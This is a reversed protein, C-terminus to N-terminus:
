MPERVFEDGIPRYFTAPGGPSLAPDDILRRKLDDIVSRTIRPLELGDAEDLTPWVVDELEGTGAIGEPRVAIVDAFVAFFRSDFRRVRGPPTIARAVVRLPSLDPVIRAAQFPEWDPHVSAPLEMGTRGLLYGTEEATERLACLALARAKRLSPRPRMRDLLRDREVPDLENAAFARGDTPDVRGGPFVYAAPMFADRSPRRGMLVRVGSLTRDLILITAADKPRLYGPRQGDAGVRNGTRGEMPANM